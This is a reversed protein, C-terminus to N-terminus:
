NDLNLQAILPEIEAATYATARYQGNVYLDYRIGLHSRRIKTKVLSEMPKKNVKNNYPM